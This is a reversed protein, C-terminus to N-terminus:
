GFISLGAAGRKGKSTPKVPSLELPLLSSPATDPASSLFQSGLAANGLLRRRKKKGGLSPVAKPEDPDPLPDVDAVQPPPDREQMTRARPLVVSKEAEIAFAEAALETASQAKTGRKSGKAAKPGARASSGGPRGRSRPNEEQEEDEPELSPRKKGRQAKSTANPAVKAQKTTRTRAAASPKKAPPSDSTVDPEVASGGGDDEDEPAGTGPRWDLPRAPSSTSDIFRPGDSGHYTGKRATADAKLKKIQRSLEELKTQNAEAKRQWHNGAQQVSDLQDALQDVQEALEHERSEQAHATSKKAKSREAKVAARAEARVRAVEQATEAREAELVMYAEDLRAQVYTARNEAGVRAIDAERADDAAALARITTHANTMRSASLAVAHQGRAKRASASAASLEAEYRAVESEWGECEEKLQNRQDRALRLEKIETELAVVRRRLGALEHADIRAARASPELRHATGPTRRASPTGTLPTM